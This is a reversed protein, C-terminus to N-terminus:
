TALFIDNEACATPITVGAIEFPGADRATSSHELVYGGAVTMEDGVAFSGDEPIQITLPDDDVVETGFPWVIVDGSAGLCGDLVELRGGGQAAMGGNAREGVLVTVGNTNLSQGSCGALAAAVVVGSLALAWRRTM